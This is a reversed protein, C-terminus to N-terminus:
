VGQGPAINSVLLEVARRRHQAFGAINRAVVVRRMQWRHFVDLAESCLAYSVLFSAGREHIADLCAGLRTLDQRSFVGPGYEKFVRRNDVAFPPDLYVFDGAQVDELTAQFDACRISATKLRRAVHQLNELTPLQGTGSPSYPVNFRGHLNTRYLGNFCFRNLYIFRAAKAPATMDGPDLSRVHYYHRKGKRHEFLEHHVAAPDRRIALYTEILESNLDGLIARRPRTAFFLCASGMFPEVYRRADKRWYSSLRPLLKRKSGAWRLFAKTGDVDM